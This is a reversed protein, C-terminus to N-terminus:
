DTLHTAGIQEDPGSGITEELQSRFIYRNEPSIMVQRLFGKKLHLVLVKHKTHLTNCWFEAPATRKKSVKEINSLAFKRVNLGLMKIELHNGGIRYTITKVLSLYLCVILLAIVM